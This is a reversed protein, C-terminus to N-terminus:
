DYVEVWTSASNIVITEYEDAPVELFEAVPQVLRKYNLVAEFTVEGLAVDEPLPWTFTEVKTERPGIRYDPGFSATYWQMITMRGEPDLYAKRFIRDGVPVGDRPLGAFDPDGLPVGLDQYALEDSAITWHEGAFGKPDVPLHWTKGESDTATVHLWVIRDEVSGTPIKHGAKANFLQVKLEVTGDYLLERETPHMRLEVSGGVKGPDHAGHFLHQSVMDVAAMKASRSEARPMHCRHCPVGEAAYPGEAWELQTSKVMMGYPNQENHCTGCFEGTQLFESLRTEHHPSDLGEKNGYKVRGPESIWNFNFSSDGERGTITHCIDCSVSENARSGAEPRPPPVDGALYALPAHCGNCGKQVPDFAPDAEAHKVALEFYEIEDWHHTYAQSMMAQTWQQYIDVHCSACARPSEYDDYDRSGLAGEGALTAGAALLVLGLAALRYPFRTRMIDEQRSVSVPARLQERRLFMM